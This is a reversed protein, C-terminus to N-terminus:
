GGDFYAKTNEDILTRLVEGSFLGAGAQLFEAKYEAKYNYESMSRREEELHKKPIVTVLKPDDSPVHYRSWRPGGDMWLDYFWGAAGNPTSQVIVQGGTAVLPRAAVWTEEAVYAAEDIVLLQATFGRVAPATGPLSHIESGNSLGIMSASDRDLSLREMNRMAARARATLRTSDRLGKSIIVVSSGSRYHAMHIAKAGVATSAGLQRGKLVLIDREDQLYPIQWPQATMRYAREFTAVQDWRRDLDALLPNM